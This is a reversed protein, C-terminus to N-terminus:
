SAPNTTAHWEVVQNANASPQLVMRWTSICCVVPLGVLLSSIVVLTIVVPEMITLAVLKNRIRRSGSM